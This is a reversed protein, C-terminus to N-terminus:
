DFFVKKGCFLSEATESDINYLGLDYLNPFTTSSLIHKVSISELRLLKIKHGIQSLIQSSFREMMPPPLRHIETCAGFRYTETKTELRYLSLQSTFISDHLITNFRQNVDLLSYLIDANSLKKFIYLLIEDPLDDLQVTSCEM